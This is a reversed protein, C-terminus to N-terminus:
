FSINNLENIKNVKDKLQNIRKNVIGNATKANCLMQIGGKSHFEYMIRPPFLDKIDVEKFLVKRKKFVHHLLECCDRMLVVDCKIKNNEKLRYFEKKLSDVKGSFKLDKAHTICFRMTLTLASLLHPNRMYEHSGELLICRYSANEKANEVKAVEVTTVKNLKGHLEFTNLIKLVKEIDEDDATSSVSLLLRLRKMSIDPDGLDPFYPHADDDVRIKNNLFTRVQDHLYDRCSVYGCVQENNESVFAMGFSSYYLNPTRPSKIILGKDVITM